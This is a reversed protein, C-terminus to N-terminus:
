QVDLLNPFRLQVGLEHGLVDGHLQLSAHGEPAGHLLGDLGGHAEAGLPDLHSAGAAQGPCLDGPGFPVALAPHGQVGHPGIDVEAHRVGVRGVPDDPHLGPHEVALNERLRQAHLRLGDLPQPVRPGRRVPLAAAARGPMMM